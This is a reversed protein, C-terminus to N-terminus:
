FGGGFGGIGGVGGAGGGAGPGAGGDGTQGTVYNFTQVDGVTSFMLMGPSFRVYRRDASIVATSMMMNTGEPLVTLQPQFGVAPNRILGALNGDRRARAIALNAVAESSSVSSLQQALIGRNVVAQNKVVSAIQQETLSEKRRGENVEFVVIADKDSLPIQQHIHKENATHRNVYIDVTIKGATVEGWIRRVLMRYQGSFGEPCVYTESMVDKKETNAFGDGLLVGGAPTRQNYLSCVSGSPEEVLIDIDADGTWTVRVMCDRVIAGSIATRFEEAKDPDSKMLDKLTAQALTVAKEQIHRHEKPWAHRLIHTVAWRIGDSDNLKQALQLGQIYPEPRLPAIEAVEQYLKLARAHVGLQAMYAASILADNPDTTLDISSTLAREVDEEPAGQAKMALGLAEYMWPRVYGARLASEIITTVAEFQRNTMHDRLTKRIAADNIKQEDQQFFEDWAESQSQGERTELKIARVRVTNPKNLSPIFKSDTTKTTGLTLTDEVDFFGGGMGGMGGGMGGMMGGGMGGGMGGMMGGGMGGMMGMGGGMMSQIPLVLDAVPYVKTVLRLEAEDPTTIQLVEDQIVYTLGLDKLILNLASKLKIGSLQKSIPIDTTLAAEELARNDIEIQIGHYQELYTMADSLPEDLFDIKTDSELADLIRQEASGTKAFDIQAYKQRRNTLDQWVEPDPYVIPENDPFPVQSSSVDYMADLFKQQKLARLQMQQDYATGLHAKVVTANTAVLNPNTDYANLSAEIALEYRREELRANFQDIYTVVLDDDRKALDLLRQREMAQARNARMTKDREDKELKQQNAQRLSTEIRDLLQARIDADLDPAQYISERLTKLSIIAANPDSRVIRRAAALGQTVDSKVIQTNLRRDEIAEDLLGSPKEVPAFERLLEEDVVAEAVDEPVLRLEEEQVMLTQGQKDAARKLTAAIPNSPDRKLAEQALFNAGAVNGAALAQTGLESLQGSDAVSMRRIERLADSGVTPLSAGGDARASDVLGTLFAFDDSSPKTAVDWTMEVPQGNVQGTIAIATPNAEGKLTGIVISDRDLRLPPFQSPFNENVAAGLKGQSPWIVPSAIAKALKQGAQQGTLNPGDVLVQGGSQNALAALLHINRQPGIAYSSVSVQHNAVQKALQSFQDRNPLDAHSVGDGIYVLHRPVSADRQFMQSSNGIGKVMDTSGLPTRKRLKQVASQTADSAAPHFGKSLPVSKLDLAAIQVRDNPSLSRLVSEVAEISDERYLGVQSASTDVLILVDRSEASPVPDTPQVSLAFYRSGDVDNFTMMTAPSGAMVATVASAIFITVGFAVRLQKSM